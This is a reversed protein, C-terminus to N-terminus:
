VGSMVADVAAVLQSAQRAVSGLPQGLDRVRFAAALHPLAFLSQGEFEIAPCLNKPGANPMAVRNGLPITLRTSLHNLLDSQVSVLYPIAERASVTPNRHIDYQAM